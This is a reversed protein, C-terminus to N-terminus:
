RRLYVMLDEKVMNEKDLNQSDPICNLDGVTQKNKLTACYFTCCGGGGGGRM